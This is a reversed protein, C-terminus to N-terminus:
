EGLSITSVGFFKGEPNVPGPLTGTEFYGTLSKEGSRFDVSIVNFAVFGIIHYAGNSGTEQYQDYVPLFIRSDASRREEVADQMSARLGTGQDILVNTKVLKDYGFRIWSEFKTNSNESQDFDIVGFGGPPSNKKHPYITAAPSPLIEPIDGEYVTFPALNGLAGGPPGWVAVARAKVEARSLGLVPALFLGKSAKTVTESILVEVKSESFNPYVEFKQENPNNSPNYNAFRKAESIAVDLDNDEALEKAASLAAADAKTQLQRREEYLSGVDTVLAGFGILSVVMVAMWIAIQGKECYIRPMKLDKVEFAM